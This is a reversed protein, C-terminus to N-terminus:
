AVSCIVSTEHFLHHEFWDGDSCLFGSDVLYGGHQGGRFIDRKWTM